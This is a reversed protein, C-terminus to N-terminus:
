KRRRNTTSRFSLFSLYAIEHPEYRLLFEELMELCKTTKGSGPVGFIRIGHPLIEGIEMYRKKWDVKHVEKESEM